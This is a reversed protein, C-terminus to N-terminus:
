HDLVPSEDPAQITYNHEHSPQPVGLHSTCLPSGFEVATLEILWNGSSSKRQHFLSAKNAGPPQSHTPLSVPFPFLSFANVELKETKEAFLQLPQKEQGISVGALVPSLTLQFEAKGPVKARSVAIVSAKPGFPNM